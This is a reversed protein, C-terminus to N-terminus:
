PEELTSELTRLSTRVTLGPLYREVVYGIGAFSRTLTHGIQEKHGV